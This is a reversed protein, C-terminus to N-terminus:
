PRATSGESAYAAVIGDWRKQVRLITEVLERVAGNGGPSGSVWDVAARVEQVADSPAASLGARGLVALDVIDDGMYAVVDDTVGEDALIREYAELKSAVGQHVLTIGLQAARHPTTPSTRASLLGVKLGARQAWVLAIGDRIGFSKSETGDSQVLVRGDTLVGDVDFLLLRIRAAKIEINMPEIAPSSRASGAGPM